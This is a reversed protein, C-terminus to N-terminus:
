PKPELPAFRYLNGTAFNAVYLEGHADRGFTSPMLPWKGLEIPQQV